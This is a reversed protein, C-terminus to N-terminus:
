AAESGARGWPSCCGPDVLPGLVGWWGSSVHWHDLLVRNEAPLVCCQFPSQRLQWAARSGAAFSILCLHSQKPKGLSAVHLM